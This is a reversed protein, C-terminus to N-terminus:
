NCNTWSGSMCTFANKQTYLSFSCICSTKGYCCSIDDLQGTSCELGQKPQEFPCLRANNQQQQIGSTVSLDVIEVTTDEEATSEEVVVVAKDTGISPPPPPPPQIVINPNQNDDPCDNQVGIVCNFKGSKNDCNCVVAFSPQISYCCIENSPM